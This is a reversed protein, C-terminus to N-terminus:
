ELQYFDPICDSIPIMILSLFYITESKESIQMRIHFSKFNKKRIEITLESALMITKNSNNDSKNNAM